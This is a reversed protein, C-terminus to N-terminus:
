VNNCVHLFVIRLFWMCVEMYKSIQMRPHKKCPYPGRASDEAELVAPPCFTTTKAKTKFM